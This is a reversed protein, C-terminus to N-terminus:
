LIAIYSRFEIMGWASQHGEKCVYVKGTRISEVDKSLYYGGDICVQSRVYYGLDAMIAAYDCHEFTLM